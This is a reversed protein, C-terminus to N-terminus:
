QPAPSTSITTILAWQLGALNLRRRRSAGLTLNGDVTFAGASAGPTLTGAAISIDADFTGNGEVTGGQINLPQSSRITAGALARVAGATQTFTGLDLRDRLINVCYPSHNDISIANLIDGSAM